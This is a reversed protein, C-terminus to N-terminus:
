CHIFSHISPNIFPHTFSHTTQSTSRSFLSRSHDLHTAHTKSEAVKDTCSSTDHICYLVIRGFIALRQLRAPPGPSTIHHKLNHEHPPQFALCLTPLLPPPPPPSSLPPLPQLFRTNVSAPQSPRPRIRIRTRTQNQSDYIHERTLKTQDNM